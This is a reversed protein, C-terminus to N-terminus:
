SAPVQAPPRRRWHAALALGSGIHWIGWWAVTVAMGGLGAFFNFVLVLGLGSNQIGVEIAIARRDAEPLRAARAAWYGLALGSGNLLAVVLVVRHVHQLFFDWNAALAGLVFIAFVLMSVIRFPRRARAAFAPWRWAVAIGLAAPILLLVAISGLVELPDITFDQLLLRTAPNLGGWFATNFPTMVLAGLTSCATVTVSLATNGRAHNTLFNSINGGPCSAVLIMGLAISPAPRLLVGLAYAAAPLLVFQAALGIIAAKPASALRRFDELRLDLAVGFLVFALVFNLAILSEPSFNLRVADIQSM